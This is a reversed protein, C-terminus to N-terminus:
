EPLFHHKFFIMYIVPNIICIFGQLFRLRNSFVVHANVVHYVTKSSSAAMFLAQEHPCTPFTVLFIQKNM